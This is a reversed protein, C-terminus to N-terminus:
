FDNGALGKPTSFEFLTGSRPSVNHWNDVDFTLGVLTGTPFHQTSETRLDMAGHGPLITTLIHLDPNHSVILLSDVSADTRHIQRLVGEPGCLYLEKLIEEEVPGELEASVLAWTQRARKASSCYVRDLAHGRERLLSNLRVGMVPAARLGRKNLPRDHDGLEPGAWSSKAHRLLFLTKM